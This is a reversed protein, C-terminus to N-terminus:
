AVFVCINLIVVFIGITIRLLWPNVIDAFEDINIEQKSEAKNISLTKM